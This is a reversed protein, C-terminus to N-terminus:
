MFLLLFRHLMTDMGINLLLTPHKLLMAKENASLSKKENEFTSAKTPANHIIRDRFEQAAEIRCEIFNLTGVLVLVVFAIKFM